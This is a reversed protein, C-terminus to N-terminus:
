PTAGYQALIAVIQEYGQYTPTNMIGGPGAMLTKITDLLGAAVDEIAGNGDEIRDTVWMEHAKDSDHKLQDAMEEAVLRIAEDDDTAWVTTCYDGQEPDGQQWDLTVRYLKM